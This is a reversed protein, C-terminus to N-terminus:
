PFFSEAQLAGGFVGIAGNPLAVGRARKRAVKLPVDVATKATVRTVHTDGAADWGVTLIDTTLSPLPFYDAHVLATPLKSWALPKCAAVCSLDYLAPAAGAIVHGGDLAAVSLVPDKIPDYALAAATTGGGGLVEIGPATASGGVVVVGRGEVWVAAAGLRAASLSVFSLTGDTGVKLVRSTPDGTPRTGGIVYATGANAYVTAGGVIESLAGGQPVTVDTSTSASLDYSSAGTDDVVLVQPGSVALTKPVRPLNPPTTLPGWNLVDYLTTDATGGAVLVYRGTVVTTLAAERADALNPMRALESTRQVFVDFTADAIAGFTVPLSRGRVRVAGTADAAAVDLYGESSQDVDALTIGDAVAGSFLNTRGGASDVLDVTITTPVPDRTFVGTEGGLDLQITATPTSSCAVLAVLLAAPFARRVATKM